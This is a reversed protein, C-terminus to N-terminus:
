LCDEYCSYGRDWECWWCWCTSISITSSIDEKKLAKKINYVHYDFDNM